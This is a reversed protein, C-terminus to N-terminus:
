TKDVLEVVSRTETMFVIRQLMHWLQGIEYFHVDSHCLLAIEHFHVLEASIVDTHCLKFYVNQSYM